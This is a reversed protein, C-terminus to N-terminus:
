VFSVKDKSAPKAFIAQIAAFVVNSSKSADVATHLGRKAYYNVLPM